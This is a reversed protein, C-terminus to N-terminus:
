EVESWLKSQYNDPLLVNYDVTKFYQLRHFDPNEHEGSPAPFLAEYQRKKDSGHIAYANFRSTKPPLYELPIEAVGQWTKDEANIKAKFELPLKTKITNRVGNVVNLMLVIHQGHPCFEVELYKDNEGLFFAEVVEYEWLEWFPKGPEGGPNGPDNFFPATVEMTISDANGSRSLTIMIPDHGTPSGDWEQTIEFTLTMSPPPNPVRGLEM